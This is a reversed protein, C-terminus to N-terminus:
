SVRDARERRAAWEAGSLVVMAATFSFLIVTVSIYFPGYEGQLKPKLLPWIMLNLNKVVELAIGVLIAAPVVRLPAIKRNPVLWYVLFLGLISVPLAALKFFSASIWFPAWSRGSPGGLFQRNLATLVFSLMALAGCAFVLALSLVQNKWYSRNRTVGWVRNLAVELPLFVANATILLLLISPLELPQRSELMAILNRKIFVFLEDPFYDNLAIFVADVAARWHFVRRALSLMVILFPFFSLLVSAAFALAQVHVETEFAYRVSPEISERIRSWTSQTTYFL